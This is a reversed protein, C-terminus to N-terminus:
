ESVKEVSDSEEELDSKEESGRDLDSDHYELVDAQVDRTEHSDESIVCYMKGALRLFEEEPAVKKESCRKLFM